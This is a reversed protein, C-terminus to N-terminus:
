KSNTDHQKTNKLHLDIYEFGKTSCQHANVDRSTRSRSRARILLDYDRVINIDQMFKKSEWIYKRAEKYDYVLLENLNYKFFEKKTLYFFLACAATYQLYTRLKQNSYLSYVILINKQDQDLGKIENGM